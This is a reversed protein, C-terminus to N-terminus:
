VLTYYFFIYPNFCKKDIGLKNTILTIDIDKKELFNNQDLM